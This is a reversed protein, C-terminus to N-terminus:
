KILMKEFNIKILLVYTYPTDQRVLSIDPELEECLAQFIPEPMSVRPPKSPLSFNKPMTLEAAPLNVRWSSFFWHM